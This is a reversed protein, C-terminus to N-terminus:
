TRLTDDFSTAIAGSRRGGSGRFTMPGPNLSMIDPPEAAIENTYTFLSGAPLAAGSLPQVLQTNDILLGLVQERIARNIQAYRAAELAPKNPDRPDRGHIHVVAAGAAYADKAAAVQEELTVPLAPNRFKQQDGTIACTVIVPGQDPTVTMLPGM